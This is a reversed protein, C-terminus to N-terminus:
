NMGRACVEVLGASNIRTGNSARTFSLDGSGDTPNSFISYRRQIRKSDNGIVRFEIFRVNILQKIQKVYM